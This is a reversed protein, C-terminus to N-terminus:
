SIILNGKYDEIIKATISQISGIKWQSDNEDIISAEVTINYQNPTNLSLLFQANFYDNQPVVVSNMTVMSHHNNNAANNTSLFDTNNPGITLAVSPIANLTLLIKSIKHFIPQNGGSQKDLKSEEYQRSKPLRLSSEFENMLSSESRSQDVDICSLTMSKLRNSHHNPNIKTCILGEVYLVFHVSQCVTISDQLSDKQYSLELKIVTTQISQFFYRPFPLPILLMQNRLNILLSFTSRNDKSQSRNTGMIMSIKRYTELMKFHELTIVSSLHVDLNNDTSLDEFSDLDMKMENQSQDRIQNLFLFNKRDQEFLKEIMEAMITCGNQLLQITRLSVLDVDFSSEYLDCYNKSISRFEESCKKMSALFNSQNSQSGGGGAGFTKTSSSQLMSCCQRLHRHAQFYSLRLRVFEYQFRMSKHESISAKLHTLGIAYLEILSLLRNELNLNEFCDISDSHKEADNKITEAFKEDILYSEADAIASLVSIWLFTMETSAAFPKIRKLLKSAFNHHGFRMSARVIKYSIWVSHNLLSKLLIKSERANIISGVKLQFYIIILRCNIQSNQIPHNCDLLQLIRKSQITENKTIITSLACATDCIIQYWNSQLDSNLLMLSTISCIRHVLFHDTQNSRCLKVINRFIEELSNQNQNSFKETRFIRILFIELISGIERTIRKQTKTDINLSINVLIKISRSIFQLKLRRFSILKRSLAVIENIQSMTLFSEDLYISPLRLLENLAQLAAILKADTQNTKFEELFGADFREFEDLVLKILKTVSSKEWLHASKRALIELNNLVTLKVTLRPDKSYYLLLLDVQDHLDIISSSAISTLVNLTACIFKKEPYKELFSILKKRADEVKRYDHHLNNIIDLLRIKTEIPTTLSEILKIIKPYIREAFRNSRYAFQASAKIVAYVELEDNSDLSKELLHHIKEDDAVIRSISGLLQLTISRAFPDNSYSVGFFNMVFQDINLIKDLHKESEEFVHLILIRLFNNESNFVESLKLSAANILIPFPYRQFLTPVNAIGEAQDGISKSNMFRDLELLVTHIDVSSDSNNAIYHAM